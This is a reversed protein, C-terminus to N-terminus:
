QNFRMLFNNLNTQILHDATVSMGEVTRKSIQDAVEWGDLMAIKCIKKRWRVIKLAEM